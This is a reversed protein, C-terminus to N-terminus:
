VLPKLAKALREIGKWEDQKKDYILSINGDFGAEQILAICRKLDDKEVQGDETYRAKFHISTARPLIRTLTDYKDPTAEANGTDACLGVAGSCNDLISLLADPQLATTHWNETIVQVGKQTAEEALASLQGTSREIVEPTAPQSGADIRVRGAGLAAAVGIWNKTFQVDDARKQDDPTAIDGADILVSYLEVDAADLAARFSRLYEPSTEPFHFHCVELSHIDHEAM